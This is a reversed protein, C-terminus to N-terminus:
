KEALHQNSNWLHIRSDKPQTDILYFTKMVSYDNLIYGISLINTAWNLQLYWGIQNTMKCLIIEKDEYVLKLESAKYLQEADDSFSMLDNLSINNWEQDSHYNNFKKYFLKAKM